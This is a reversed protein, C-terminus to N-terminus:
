GLLAKAAHSFNLLNIGNVKQEEEGAYILTPNHCRKGVLNEFTQLGKLFSCNFTKAAKIEIPVLQHGKRSSFTLRM